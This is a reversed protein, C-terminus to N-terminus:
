TDYAEAQFKSVLTPRSPNHHRLPIAQLKVSVWWITVNTMVRHAGAKGLTKQARCNDACFCTLAWSVWSFVCSSLAM